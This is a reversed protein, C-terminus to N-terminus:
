DAPGTALTVTATHSAGQTDTWSVSVKDGPGAAALVNHLQTSSTIKTGGVATITSGATIGAKAAPLGPEATQVVVGSGANTPAIGLFGPLGIHITTTKVGSEIKKAVSMANDITIAYASTTTSTRSSSAATDMGVVQGASDYLPGGSDGSIIPANIEILGHLREADAGTEDTATISRDLAVVKGSAASLTGTGGANGVGTVADGVSVDSASDAYNAPTLGSANKLQLVAVDKTPATGVVSAKYSRGTSQVTVTISTAGNVVHNNTLIEGSSTLITGTGASEANQYKLVSVITVVGSTQTSTAGSKGSGTNTSGTGGSGTGGGLGGSGSSGGSGSGGTSGNGTGGFAGPISTGQGQVNGSGNSTAFGVAAIVVAAAVVLALLGGLM